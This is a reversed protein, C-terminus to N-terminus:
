KKRPGYVPTPRGLELAGLDPAKGTFGDTITPLEVGRDIAASGAKLRFDFEEAKYLKQVNAMDKGDLRPVNMFVDYDLMLSHQDQGSGKQYDALTAYQHIELKADQAPIRM